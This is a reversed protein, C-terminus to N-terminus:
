KKITNIIELIQEFESDKSIIKNLELRLLNKDLNLERGDLTKFNQYINDEKAKITKKAFLSKIISNDIDLTQTSDRNNYKTYIRTDNRNHGDQSKWLTGIIKTKYSYTAINILYECRIANFFNQEIYVLEVNQKKAFKKWNKDLENWNV